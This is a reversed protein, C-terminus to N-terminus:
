AKDEDFDHEQMSANVIEGNKIIAFLDQMDQLKRSHCDVQKSIQKSIILISMSAHEMADLHDLGFTPAQPMNPAEDPQTEQTKKALIVIEEEDYIEVTTQCDEHYIWVGIKHILIDDILNERPNVFVIEENSTDIGVHEIVYSIFIGYALFKSSSSAIGLMVKLIIKHYEKSKETNIVLCTWSGVSFSIHTGQLHHKISFISIM